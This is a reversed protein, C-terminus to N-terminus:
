WAFAGVKVGNLLSSLIGFDAHIYLNCREATKYLLKTESSLNSSSCCWCAAPSTRFRFLRCADPCCCVCHECHHFRRCLQTATASDPLCFESSGFLWLFKAHPSPDMSWWNRPNNVFIQTKLAALFLASLLQSSGVAHV